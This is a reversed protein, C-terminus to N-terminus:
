SSWKILKISKWVQKRQALRRWWLDAFKKLRLGFFSIIDNPPGCSKLLSFFLARKLMSEVNCSLEVESKLWLRITTLIEWQCDPFNASIKQPQSPWAPWEFLRRPGFNARPGANASRQRLQYFTRTFTIQVYFRCLSVFVVRKLWYFLTKALISSNEM